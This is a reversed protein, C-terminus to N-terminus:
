VHRVRAHGRDVQGHDQGTCQAHMGRAAAIIAHAQASHRERGEVRAHASKHPADAAFAGSTATVAVAAAVAGMLIRRHM